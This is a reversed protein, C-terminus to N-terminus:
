KLVVRLNGLLGDNVCVGDGINDGVNGVYKRLVTDNEKCGGDTYFDLFLESTEVVIKNALFVGQPFYNPYYNCANVVKAEAPFIVKPKSCQRDKFFLMQAFHVSEPLLYTMHHPIDPIALTKGCTYYFSGFGPTGALQPTCINEVCDTASQSYAIDILNTTCNSLFNLQVDFRTNIQIISEDPHHSLDPQSIQPQQM